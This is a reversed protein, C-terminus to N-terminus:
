GGFKGGLIANFDPTGQTNWGAVGSTPQIPAPTTGQSTPMATDPVSSAQIAAQGLMNISVPAPAVPNVPATPAPPFPNQPQPTGQTPQNPTMQAATNTMQAPITGQAATKGTMQAQNGTMQAATTTGQAQNGTMQAPTTGQEATATTIVVGAKANEIAQAQAEGQAKIEAECDALIQALNDITIPQNYINQYEACLKEFQRKNEDIAGQAQQIKINIQQAEANRAKFENIDLM